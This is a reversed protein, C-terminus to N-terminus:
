APMIHLCAPLLTTRIRTRTTHAVDMHVSRQTHHVDQLLAHTRAHTRTHTHTHTTKCDTAGQLWREAAALLVSQVSERGHRWHLCAVGVMDIGRCAWATGVQVLAATLAAVQQTDMYLAGHGKGVNPCSFNAEV